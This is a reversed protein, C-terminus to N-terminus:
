RKNIHFIGNVEGKLVPDVAAHIGDGSAWYYINGNIETSRIKTDHGTPEGYRRVSDRKIADYDVKCPNRLVEILNGLVEIFLSKQPLVGSQYEPEKRVFLTM